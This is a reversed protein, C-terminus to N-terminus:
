ARFNWIRVICMCRLVVWLYAVASIGARHPFSFGPSGSHVPAPPTIGPDVLSSIWDYVEPASVKTYGGPFDGCGIGFSVIGVQRLTTSELLPGGSDGQCSDRGPLFACMMTQPDLGPYTSRCQQDSYVALRVERLRDSVPGEFSTTGWGMTLVSTGPFLDVNRRPLPVFARDTVPTRLRLVMADYNFAGDIYRPHRAVADVDRYFNIGTNRSFPRCPLVTTRDTATRTRHGDDERASVSPCRKRSYQM